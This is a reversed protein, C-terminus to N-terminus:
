IVNLNQQYGYESPVQTYEYTPASPPPAQPSYRLSQIINEIAELRRNTTRAYFCHSFCVGTTIIIPIILIIGEM